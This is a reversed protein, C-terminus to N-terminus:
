CCLTKVNISKAFVHSKCYLIQPRQGWNLTMEAGETCPTGRQQITDESSVSEEEQSALLGESFRVDIPLGADEM